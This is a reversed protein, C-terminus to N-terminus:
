FSIKMAKGFMQSVQHNAAKAITKRNSTATFEMPEGLVVDVDFASKKIFNFLHPALTVNGPWSAQPQYRRGLPVGHLRTYAIAVPQVMVLDIHSQRIAYQAAGFLSSNFPHLKHGDGTTGEAFLVMVDGHLLRSAITDAQNVADRSRKRDVFVTGQMKALRSIIPWAGVESKAIFCLERISGLVLIDVWSVHNSVLLLPQANALSGHVNVRVGMLWLMSRHWWNPIKGALRIKLARSIFQLPVLIATLLLMLLIAIGLRLGAIM